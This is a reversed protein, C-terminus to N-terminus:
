RIADTQTGKAKDYSRAAAIGLMGTVLSSMLAIDLAPPYDAEPPLWGMAIGLKWAWTMLPYMIFQYFFTMVAVWGIGPRWGAVLWSPHKAEEKNVEIQGELLKFEGSLVMQEAVSEAESAKAEIDLEKDKDKLVRRLITSALDKIAPLAALIAPAAM